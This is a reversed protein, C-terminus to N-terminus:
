VPWTNFHIVNLTLEINKRQNFIKEKCISQFPRKRRDLPELILIKERKAGVM